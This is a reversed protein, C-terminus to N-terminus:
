FTTPRTIQWTHGNELPTLVIEEPWLGMRLRKIEQHMETAIVSLTGGERNPVFTHRSGLSSAVRILIENVHARKAALIQNHAIRQSLDKVQDRAPLHSYRSV